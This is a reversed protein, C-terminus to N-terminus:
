EPPWVWGRREYYTKRPTARLPHIGWKICVVTHLGIGLALITVPVLLCWAGFAFYLGITLGHITVWKALMSIPPVETAFRMFFTPGLIQIALLIALLTALSM